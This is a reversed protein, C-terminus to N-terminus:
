ALDFIEIENFCEQGDYGGFLYLKKGVRNLSHCARATPLHGTVQVKVWFAQGGQTELYYLDDM